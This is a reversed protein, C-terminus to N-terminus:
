QPPEIAIGLTGGTFLSVKRSGRPNRLANESIRVFHLRQFLLELLQVVPEQHRVLSEAGAALLVVHRQIFETAVQLGSAGRHVLHFTLPLGQRLRQADRRCLEITLALHGKGQLVLLLMLVLVMMLLLLLL